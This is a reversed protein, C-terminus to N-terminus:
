SAADPAQGGITATQGDWAVTVWPFGQGALSRGIRQAAIIPQESATEEMESITVLRGDVVQFYQGEPLDVCQTAKALNADDAPGCAALGAAFVMAIVSDRTSHMVRGM